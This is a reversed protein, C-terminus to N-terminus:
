KKEKVLESLRSKLARIHNPWSDEAKEGWHGVAGCMCAWDYAGGNYDGCQHETTLELVKEGFAVRDAEFETALERVMGSSMGDVMRSAFNIAREIPKLGSM